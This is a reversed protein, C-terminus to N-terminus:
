RRVPPAVGEVRNWPLFSRWFVELMPWDPDVLTTPGGLWPRHVNAARGRGVFWQAVDQNNAGGGEADGRDRPRRVLRRRNPEVIMAHAVLGPDVINLDPPLLQQRLQHNGNEYDSSSYDSAKANSYRMLAPSPSFGDDQLQHPQHHHKQQLAVLNDFVFQLVADENWLKASQQVFIRSMAHVAQLTAVRVITDGGSFSAQTWRYEVTGQYVTTFDLVTIWDRRFSRGVTDVENADLLLSVINPFKSIAVQLAADAKNKFRQQDEQDEQDQSLRFLALAYSYAFNPMDLLDCSYVQQQRRGPPSDQDGDDRYWVRIFTCSSSDQHGGDTSRSSEELFRVLWEDAASSKCALCAHDLM